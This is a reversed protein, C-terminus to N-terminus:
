VMLDYPDRVSGGTLFPFGVTCSYCVHLLLEFQVSLQMSVSCVMLYLYCLM